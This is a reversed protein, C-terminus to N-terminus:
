SVFAQLEDLPTKKPQTIERIKTRLEDSLHARVAAESALVINALKARSSDGKSLASLIFPGTAAPNRVSFTRNALIDRWVRAFYQVVPTGAMEGLPHSSLFQVLHVTAMFADAADFVFDPRLMRGLLSAVVIILDDRKASPDAITDFLPELCAALEQKQRLRARLAEIVDIRDSCVATVLFILVASTTSECISKDKWEEATIPKLLGTPMVFVSELRRDLPKSTSEIIARPYIVLEEVFRDVNLERLAAGLLRSALMMEMPLLGSKATRQRLAALVIQGNGIDAELEALQYWPLLDQPLRREKIEAPPDPNSCMGIMMVQREVPWDAAAGRMWLIAAVLILKCYHEKIGVKPDIHEAETLARVMLSLASEILGVEFDVVACDASLGAKMPLMHSGCKGAAEWARDFFIRTKELDGVEAASRGAERFAFVRDIQNTAPFSDAFTEFEALALSHDGNRYYVKQRQRNIRYDQPYKAQADSLIQLAHKMDGAYEDLMVAQACALEVAMDTNKWLSATKYTTALKTAATKGDFDKARVSSLWASAVIHGVSRSVNSAATLYRERTATEMADLAGVLECLQDIGNLVTARAIFIMEDPSASLTLGSYPDAYSPKQRLLSQMEPLAVLVKLLDLWRKPAPSTKPKVAECISPSWDAPKLRTPKCAPNRPIVRSVLRVSAEM